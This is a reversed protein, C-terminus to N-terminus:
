KLFNVSKNQSKRGNIKTRKMNNKNQQLKPKKKKM